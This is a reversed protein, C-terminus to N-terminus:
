QAYEKIAEFDISKFYEKLAETAVQKNGDIKVMVKNAVMSTLSNDRENAIAKEGNIVILKNDQGMFMPNSFMMGM